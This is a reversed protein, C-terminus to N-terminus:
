SVSSYYGEERIEYLSTKLMKGKSIAKKIIKHTKRKVLDETDTMSAM